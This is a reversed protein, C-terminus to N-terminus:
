TRTARSPRAPRRTGTRAADSRRGVRVAASSQSRRNGHLEGNRTERSAAAGTNRLRANSRRSSAKSSARVGDRGAGEAARPAPACYGVAPSASPPVAPTACSRATACTRTSTTSSASVLRGPEAARGPVLRGRTANPYSSSSAGSRRTRSRISSSSACSRSTTSRRQERASRSCTTTSRAALLRRRAQGEEADLTTPKAPDRDPLRGQRARRAAVGRGQACCADEADHRDAAQPVHRVM